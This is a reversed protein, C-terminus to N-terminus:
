DPETRKELGKKLLGPTKSILRGATELEGKWKDVETKLGLLDTVAELSRQRDAIDNTEDEIIAHHKGVVYHLTIKATISAQDEDETM